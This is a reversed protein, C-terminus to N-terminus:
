PAQFAEVVDIRLANTGGHVAARGLRDYVVGTPFFGDDVLINQLATVTPAGSLSVALLRDAGSDFDSAVILRNGGEDLDLGDPRGLAAQSAGLDVVAGAATVELIRAALLEPDAVTFGNDLVWLTGDSSFVLDSLRAPEPPTTATQIPAPTLPVPTPSAPDIALVRGDATTAVLQGGFTPFTPPALELGLVPSAPSIAVLLTVANSPDIRFVNGFRTGVYVDESLPEFALGLLDEGPAGIGEVRVSLAGGRSVVGVFNGTSDDDLLPDDEDNGVLILDGVRDFEMDGYGVTTGEITFGFASPALPPVSAGRLVVPGATVFAIAGNGDFTIGSPPTPSFDYPAVATPAGGALPVSRLVDGGADAVVIEENLPDIGLGVPDVYGTAFSTATGDAAVTDVRASTGNVAYLTTGSFAVDRYAAATTLSASTAPEADLDVRAIGASGVAAILDGAFDGFGLPAITIGTVPQGTGTDVLLSSSGMEDVAWIRGLADGAYLTGDAAAAVSRLVTGAGGVDVAANSVSGDDRAVRTVIATGAVAVLDGSAEFEADGPGGSASLLVPLWAQPFPPAFSFGGGGSSGSCGGAAAALAACALAALAAARGCVGLGATRM